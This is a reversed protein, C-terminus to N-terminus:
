RRRPLWKQCLESAMMAGAVALLVPVLFDHDARTFEFVLVVATLPMQMSVSLFAAAGVLAFGGTSAQPWWFNWMTGSILGLLAGITLGPTLLGGEAGAWLSATTSLLKLALLIVALKFGIDGDLGLQIPGKGNGLLEPFVMALVGVGCFAFLCSVFIWVNKPARARANQALKAYFWGGCGLLPGVVASWVVLSLSIALHPLMYQAEDGLGIWAVSAAIVSTAIAPIAVPAAFSRLLVEMVFLAGGLPVNYVAALGAGAGCALMTRCQEGPLKLRSAIWGALLTGIERPAVERGLPSGLAVTVIQLLAHGITTMPPMAIDPKAVAERVTVLPRGFRYVIWWGIGAVLGCIALVALRRLPSAARVGELFSEPSVVANLSYGYAIHQIAHLLLALLMGALGALVGITVVAVLCAPTFAGSTVAEDPVTMQASSIALSAPDSVAIRDM